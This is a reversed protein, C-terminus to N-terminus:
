DSQRSLNNVRSTLNDRKHLNTYKCPCCVSFSSPPPTETQPSSTRPPCCCLCWEGRLWWGAPSRGRLCQVWTRRQSRLSGWGPFHRRYSGGVVWWFKIMEVISHGSKNTALQTHRWRSGKNTGFFIYPLNKRVFLANLEFFSRTKTFLFKRRNRKRLM